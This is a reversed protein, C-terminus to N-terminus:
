SVAVAQDGTRSGGEVEGTPTQPVGRDDNDSENVFSM